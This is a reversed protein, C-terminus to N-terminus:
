TPRTNYQRPLRVVAGSLQTPDSWDISKKALVLIMHAGAQCVCMLGVTIHISRVLGTSLGLLYAAFSLQSGILLPIYSALSIIAARASGQALTDVRWFNCFLTATFYSVILAVQFWYVPGVFRRRELVRPLTVKNTWFQLLSAPCCRHLVALIRFCVLLILFSGAAISYM